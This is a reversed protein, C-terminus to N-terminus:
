KESLVNKKQKSLINVIFVVAVACSFPSVCEPPSVCSLSANSRPPLRAPVPNDYIETPPIVFSFTYHSARTCLTKPLRLLRIFTVLFARTSLVGHIHAHHFAFTHRSPACAAHIAYLISVYKGSHTHALSLSRRAHTQEVCWM